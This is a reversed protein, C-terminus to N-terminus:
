PTKRKYNSTETCGSPSTRATMASFVPPPAPNQKTMVSFYGPPPSLPAERAPLTPSPEPPSFRPPLSLQVAPEKLLPEPLPVEVPAEPPIGEPIHVELDRAPLETPLLPDIGHLLPACFLLGLCFTSTKM